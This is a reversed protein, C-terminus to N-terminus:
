EIATLPQETFILTAIAIGKAGHLVRVSHLKQMRKPVVILNWLGRLVDLTVKYTLLREPTSPHWNGRITFHVAENDHRRHILLFKDYQNMDGPIIGDGAIDIIDEVETIAKGLVQRTAALVDEADREWEVLLTTQTGPVRYPSERPRSGSSGRVELNSRHWQDSGM